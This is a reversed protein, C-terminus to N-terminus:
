LQFVVQGFLADQNRGSVRDAKHGVLIDATLIDATLIDVRQQRGDPLEVRGSRISESM